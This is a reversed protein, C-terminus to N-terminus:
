TYILSLCLNSMSMGADINKNDCKSYKEFKKELIYSEPACSWGHGVTKAIPCCRSNSSMSFSQLCKADTKILRCETQYKYMSATFGCDNHCKGDFDADNEKDYECADVNGCINDKDIDNLPDLPCKDLNACIRDGDIDNGADYPCTDQPACIGDGDADSEPDLPCKDNVDCIADSDKDNFRDFPCPDDGACQGDKDADNAPDNPCIDDSHCIQDSDM